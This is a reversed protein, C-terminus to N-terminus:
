NKAMAMMQASRPQLLTNSRMLSHTRRQRAMAERDSVTGGTRWGRTSVALQHHSRRRAPNSSRGAPGTRRLNERASRYHNVCFAISIIAVILSATPRPWDSGVVASHAARTRDAATASWPTRMRSAKANLSRESSRRFRSDCQTSLRGATAPSVRRKAVGRPLHDTRM